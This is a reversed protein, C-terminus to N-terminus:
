HLTGCIMCMNWGSGDSDIGCDSCCSNWGTWVNDETEQEYISALRLNSAKRHVTIKNESNVLPLLQVYWYVSGPTTSRAPTTKGKRPFNRSKTGTTKLKRESNRTRVGTVEGKRGKYPNTMLYVFKGIAVSM